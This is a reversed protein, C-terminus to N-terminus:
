TRKQLGSLLFHVDCNNQFCKESLLRIYSKNKRSTTKRMIVLFDNKNDQSNRLM